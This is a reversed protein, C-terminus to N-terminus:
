IMFNLSRVVAEGLEVDGGITVSGEALARDPQWRGGGLCCFTETDTTIRTTPEDPAEDVLRARGDVVVSLVRAAPGTVEVVVSSGDPAGAKKGVVYGLALACRDLAHEALPGALNGPTGVARRIDQEHMWTDFVRIAMFERFPAEGAPTWGVEDFREAPLAGLEAIRAAAVEELEALVEPGPHARRAEVWVENAAGLPNRVHAAGSVDVTPAEDGRLSRETGIIHSVNDKVTWGPLDTPLEWEETTLPRCTDVLSRFAHDLLDVVPDPNATDPM